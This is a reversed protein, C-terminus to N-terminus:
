PCVKAGVEGSAESSMILTASSLTGNLELFFRGDNNERGSRRLTLTEQTGNQYNLELDFTKLSLDSFELYLYRSSGDPAESFLTTRETVPKTVNASSEHVSCAGRLSPLLQRYFVPNQPVDFLTAFEWVLFTPPSEIFTKSRLYTELAAEPGGGVASTNLVELGTAEELFGAFNLDKRASNSTGALAIPPPPANGFLSGSGPNEPETSTRTLREAPPNEGCIRGIAGGYSGVQEEDRVAHTSFAQQRNAVQGYAPSAQITQAVASASAEAGEPTWHHDRKFFYHPTKAVVVALNTVHLGRKELAERLERYEASVTAPNYGPLSGTPLATGRPPQAALILTVGKAALGANLQGLYRLTQSSISFTQALDDDRFLWGDPGQHLRYFWQGQYAAPQGAADCFFAPTQRNEWWSILGIGGGLALLAIFLHFFRPM